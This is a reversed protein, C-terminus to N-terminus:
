IAGNMRPQRAAHLEREARFVTRHTRAYPRKNPYTSRKDIFLTFTRRANVCLPYEYLGFDYCLTVIISIFIFISPALPPPLPVSHRFSDSVCRCDACAAHRARPCITLVRWYWGIMHVVGFVLSERATCVDFSHSATLLDVFFLIIFLIKHECFSVYVRLISLFFKLLHFFSCFFLDFYM